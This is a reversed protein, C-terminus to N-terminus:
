KKKFNKDIIQRIRLAGKHDLFNICKKQMMLIKNINNKLSMIVNNLKKIKKSKHHGLYISTKKQAFAIQNDETEKDNAIIISPLRMLSAEFKTVGSNTILLDSDLMIKKLNKQSRFISFKIKKGFLIKKIESNKIKSLGGIVINLNILLNKKKLIKLTKITIKNPDSGGMSIMINNIKKIKKKKPLKPLVAYKEGIFIKKSKSRFKTVVPFIVLDPKVNVSLTNAIVVRFIKLIKKDKFFVKSLFSDFKTVDFIIIKFKKLILFKSLKKEKTVYYHPLKKRKLLNKLYLSRTLFFIKKTSYSKYIQLCRQLHGTGIKKSADLYIGIM